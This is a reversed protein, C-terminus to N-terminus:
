APRGPDAGPDHVALVAQGRGGHRVPLPQAPLDVPRDVRGDHRDPRDETNRLPRWLARDQFWGFLGGFLIAALIGVAITANSGFLTIQGDASDVVWAVLAGFTILEGHAFNTLGTTGFIMSLGLAAMALLLSFVIGGALLDIAQDWKTDVEPADDIPFTFFQDSETNIDASLSEQDPDQLATGEPLTETDIEVVISTGLVDIVTGPLALDFLGTQDTEGEVLVNDEDDLVTITVGPVAKDGDGRLDRLCGQVHITDDDRKPPKVCADDAAATAPSGLVTLLAVLLSVLLSARLLPLRM